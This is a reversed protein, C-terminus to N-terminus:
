ASRLYEQAASLNSGTIVFAAEFSTWLMKKAEGEKVGFRALAKAIISFADKGHIIESDPSQAFKRELAAVSGLISERKKLSMGAKQLLAQVYAEFGLNLRGGVFKLYRLLNTKQFPLKLRESESLLRLLGLKRGLTRVTKLLNEATIGDTRAGLKLVKELCLEHLIYGELDRPDTLWVKKPVRRGLLRDFDADAFFHINAKAERDELWRAFAILRGREGGISVDHIDIASIEIVNANPNLDKGLLWRLFLRDRSGEVFLERRSPDMIHATVIAEPTRRIM